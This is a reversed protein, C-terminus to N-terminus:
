AQEPRYPFAVGQVGNPPYVKGMWRITRKQATVDTRTCIKVIPTRIEAIGHLASWELPWSLMEKLWTIEGSFGLSTGVDMFQNAFALSTQCDMSCPFHPIARVGASRLLVNLLPPGSLVISDSDSGALSTRRAIAWVPDNLHEEQFVRQFVARCCSPYGLMEGIVDRDRRIWAAKFERADRKRGVAVHILLSTSDNLSGMREARLPIVTLGSRAAAGSLSVFDSQFVQPMACRRVGACVSRWEIGMWAQRVKRIMPERVTRVADSAWAFRVTEPLNFNLLTM